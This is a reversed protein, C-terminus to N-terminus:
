ALYVVVLGDINKTARVKLKRPPKQIGREWIKENVEQSIILSEPKFHRNMYERLYRLSKNARKNRPGNRAKALPIVYLREDIIEEKPAELEEEEEEEIIEDFIEDIEERETAPEIEFEEIEKIKKEVIPEKGIEEPEEIDEPEEIEEVEELEGFDGSTDEEEELEKELDDLSIEKSKKKAM